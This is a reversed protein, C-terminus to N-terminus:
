NMKINKIMMKLIIQFIPNFGIFTNIINIESGKEQIIKNNDIHSDINIIEKQKNLNQAINSKLHITKVHRDKNFKSYFKCQCYECCKENDNLVGCDNNYNKATFIIGSNINSNNGIINTENSRLVKM